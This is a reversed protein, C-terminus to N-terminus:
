TGIIIINMMTTHMMTVIMTIREHVLALIISHIIITIETKIINIILISEKVMSTITFIM